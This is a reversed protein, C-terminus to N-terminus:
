RRAEGAPDLDEEAKEKTTIVIGDEDVVYGLQKPDLLSRLVGHLSMGAVNLTVPMNRTIGAAKLAQGDIRIRLGDYYASLFNLADELPLQQFIATTPRTLLRVVKESVYPNGYEERPMIEFRLGDDPDPAPLSLTEKAGPKVNITEVLQINWIGRAARLERRIQVRGAPVRVAAPRAGVLLGHIAFGACAEPAGTPDMNVTVRQPNTDRNVIEIEAAPQLRIQTEAGPKPLPALAFGAPSLVALSYGSDPSSIRFRGERDTSASTEGPPDRLSLNERLMIPAAPANEPEPVLVVTAVPVPRGAANHVIGSRMQEPVPTLDAADRVLDYRDPALFLLRRPPLPAPASLEKYLALGQAEYEAWRGANLAGRTLRYRPYVPKGRQERLARLRAAIQEWTTIEDRWLLVHTAIVVDLSPDAEAPRTDGRAGSKATAGEKQVAGKSQAAEDAASAAGWLGGGALGFLLPGLIVFGQLPARRLRPERSALRRIRVLLWALRDILQEPLDLINM